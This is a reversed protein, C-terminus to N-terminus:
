DGEDKVSGPCYLLLGIPLQEGFIQDQEKTTLNSVSLAKELQESQYRRRIKAILEEPINVERQDTKHAIQGLVFPLREDNETPILLLEEVWAACQGKPVVNAASGYFLHRAGIRALAWFDAAVAESAIIRKILADGLKIKLQGELLEMSALARIKEVYQYLESKGKIEIRGNRRNFISPILEHAIQMQQGKNLGGAIRRYCIWKQIQCESTVTTNFESLIVKWLDKLRHDDLPFGFGPRLLFGAINWWRAQFKDPMRRLDGGLPLAPWLARLISLSWERRPKDLIVELSEMLKDSASESFDSFYNKLFQKAKEITSSELQEENRANGIMSLSNEQGAATRLQFELTWRHDTKQSKLWLELTGIANLHIGLHVPIREAKSEDAVKKGFRLIAHVPPLPHLEALDIDVMEGSADNLRVHSSYLQFIAPTNPQLWFTHDPEYKTGEECGRPLLTIAKRVIVGKSEEIDIGLYYGRASGGGVRVGLGRRVKGYYAAGKGVALDLSGSNLISPSREPFWRRLSDMLASQFLAPKMAGGNFLVFDPKELSSSSCKLFQALHKCISPENEYPLGMTRIGVANEIKSAEEWTYQGFFGDRLLNEIELRSILLTRSDRVVSSGTGQLIVQFTDESPNGLLTEKAQRAQHILQLWQSPTPEEKFMKTEIYHAIAADMNDGGLLLHDGVAMRQLTPLEETGSVEILSFDTTGGGVDCILVKCGLPLEKQWTSEHQSLWAYFAAQPEELLTMHKIGAKVAAEATLARAVEDFSAPVTLVIEQHSFELDPNGKSMLSNWADCIHSLYRSSAEIPSLRQMGETAAAPLIKERRNASKHCLWSKASQVLRTPVKSGQQQAFYGVFFDTQNKWPLKLSGKPWEGDASLYCYSPLSPLSDISGVSTLQPIRFQQITLNTSQSDVYCVSSNTTGLDVGIIYRM